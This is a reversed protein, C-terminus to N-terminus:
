TIANLLRRCRVPDDTLGANLGWLWYNVTQVITWARAKDPELGGANVLVAFLEHVAAADPADDIRDWMLEAVCREPNGIVPKPDIALWPQRTGALINDYHLDSHVLTTGPDTALQTALQTALDVFRAPLPNNQAEQRAALTTALEHAIDVLPPLGAPAPVALQSILSGAIEAAQMLPPTKLSCDPNLRELLIAREDRSHELALVAGQGAWTKLADIEDTARPEPGFIKLVCPQHGQRVLLILNWDGYPPQQELPRLGWDSCLREVRDPV